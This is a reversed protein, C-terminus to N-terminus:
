EVSGNAANAYFTFKVTIAQNTVPTGTNNRIVAQYNIQKPVQAKVSLAIACLVFFFITKISM